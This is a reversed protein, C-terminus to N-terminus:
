AIRPPNPHLRAMSISDIYRGNRLGYGQHRGEDVFGMSEYVFPM